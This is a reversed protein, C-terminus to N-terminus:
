LQWKFQSDILNNFKFYCNLNAVTSLNASLVHSNILRSFISRQGTTIKKFIKMLKRRENRLFSM